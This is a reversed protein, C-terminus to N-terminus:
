PISYYLSQLEFFVEVAFDELSDFEGQAIPNFCDELIELNSDFWQDFGNIISYPNM